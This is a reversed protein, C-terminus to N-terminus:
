KWIAIEDLPKRGLRPVQAGPAPFGVPVLLVPVENEPRGLLEGLFGMPSPTHTLAVLGLHHIAALLFGSAIGVSESVYYNKRRGGDPVAEWVQKFVVILWPADTIHQKVDDTGLPALADIWEPGMRGGYNLREEEEAAMRITAKLTPDSVAVFRWPQKHAGSPATGATAIALEILERPVPEISFDRTTRRRQMEALFDRARAKMEDPDRRVFELPEFEPM